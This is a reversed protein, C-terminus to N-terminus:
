EVRASTQESSSARRPFGAARRADLFARQDVRTSTEAGAHAQHFCWTILLGVFAPSIGIEARFSAAVGGAVAIVAACLDFRFSVWRQAATWCLLAETNTDIAREFRSVFAGGVGFARM